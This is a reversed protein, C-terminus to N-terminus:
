GQNNLHLVISNFLFIHVKGEILLRSIHINTWIGLGKMQASLMATMDEGALFHLHLEMIQMILLEKHFYICAILTMIIQVSPMIVLHDDGSTSDVIRIGTFM